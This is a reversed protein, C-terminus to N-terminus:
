RGMWPQRSKACACIAVHDKLRPVM